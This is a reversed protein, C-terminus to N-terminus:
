SVVVTRCGVDLSRRAAWIEPLMAVALAPHRNAARGMLDMLNCIAKRKERADMVTKRRFEKVIEKEESRSM